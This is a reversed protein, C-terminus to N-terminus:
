VSIKSSTLKGPKAKNLMFYLERDSIPKDLEKFVRRQRVSAATAVFGVPRDHGINHVKTFHVMALPAAEALTTSLNGTVDRFNLSPVLRARTEPGKLEKATAWFPAQASGQADRGGAGCVLGGSYESAARM